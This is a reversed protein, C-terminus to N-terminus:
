KRMKSEKNKEKVKKITIYMLDGVISIGTVGLALIMPEAIIANSIISYFDYANEGLALLIEKGIVDQVRLAFYKAVSNSSIAATIAIIANKVIAYKFFRNLIIRKM